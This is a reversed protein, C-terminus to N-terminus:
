TRQKKQIMKDYLEVPLRSPKIVSSGSTAERNDDKVSNGWSVISLNVTAESCISTTSAGMDDKNTQRSICQNLQVRARSAQEITTEVVLVDDLYAPRRYKIAIGAVVFGLQHQQLLTQHDLGTERLWETRAREMFHLYRAHYVIGGADTDEYYVRFSIHHSPNAISEM